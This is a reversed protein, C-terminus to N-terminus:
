FQKGGPKVRNEDKHDARVLNYERKEHTAGWLDFAFADCYDVISKILSSVGREISSKDAKFTMMNGVATVHKTLTFLGAAASNPFTRPARNSIDINFGYKGCLDLIRILADAVEVEIMKRKPLHDDMLDKRVGELGEALESVVLMWLLDPDRYIPEGNVPNRWWRAHDNHVELALANWEASNTPIIKMM